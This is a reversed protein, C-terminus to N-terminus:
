SIMFAESLRRVLSSFDATALSRLSRPLAGPHLLFYVVNSLSYISYSGISGSGFCPGYHWGFAYVGVLLATLSILHEPFVSLRRNVMYSRFPDVHFSLVRKLFDRLLCAYADSHHPIDGPPNFSCFICGCGMDKQRYPM